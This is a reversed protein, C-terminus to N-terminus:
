EYAVFLREIADYLRGVSYDAAYYADSTRLNAPIRRRYLEEALIVRELIGIILVITRRRNGRTSVDLHDTLIKKLHMKGNEKGSYKM